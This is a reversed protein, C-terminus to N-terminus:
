YFNNYGGWKNSNNNQKDSYFKQNGQNQGGGFNKKNYGGMNPNQGGSPGGRLGPSQNYGPSSVYGGQEPYQGPGPGFGFGEGEYDEPMNGGPPKNSKYFFQSKEEKQSFKSGRKKQDQQKPENGWEEGHWPADNDSSLNDEFSPNSNGLGQKFQSPKVTQSMNFGPIKMPNEEIFQIWRNKYKTVNVANVNKLLSQMMAGKDETDATALVKLIVFNGYKNKM